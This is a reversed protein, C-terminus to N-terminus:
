TPMYIGHNKQIKKKQFCREGRTTVCVKGLELFGLFVKKKAGANQHNFEKEMGGERERRWSFLALCVFHFFFNARM